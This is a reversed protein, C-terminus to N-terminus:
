KYVSNPGNVVLEYSDMTTIVNVGTNTDKGGGVRYKVFLTTNSKPIEGLSTNNLFTALNVKMTGTMYNDLNDM